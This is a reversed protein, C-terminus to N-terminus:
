ALVLNFEPIFKARFPISTFNGNKSIFIRGGPIFFLPFSISELIAIEGEAVTSNAETNNEFDILGVNDLFDPEGLEAPWYNISKTLPVFTKIM